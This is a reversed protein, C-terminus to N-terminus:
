IEELTIKIPVVDFTLHASGDSNESEKKCIIVRNSDPEKGKVLFNFSIFNGKRIISGKLKLELPNIYADGEIPESLRYDNFNFYGVNIETTKYFLNWTNTKLRRKNFDLYSIGEPFKFYYNDDLLEFHIRNDSKGENFELIIEKNDKLTPFLIRDNVNNSLKRRLINLTRYRM